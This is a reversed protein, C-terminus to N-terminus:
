YFGRYIRRLSGIFPKDWAWLWAAPHWVLTGQLSRGAAEFARPRLDLLTVDGVFLQHFYLEVLSRAQEASARQPTGDGSRASEHAGTSRLAGEPSRVIFPALQVDLHAAQLSARRQETATQRLPRDQRNRRLTRAVQWAGAAPMVKLIAPSVFDGFERWETNRLIQTLM